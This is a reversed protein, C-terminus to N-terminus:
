VDIEEIDFQNEEDYTPSRRSSKENTFSKSVAFNTCIASNMSMLVQYQYNDLTSPKIFRILPLTLTSVERYTHPPFAAHIEKQKNLTQYDGESSRPKHFRYMGSSQRSKCGFNYFVTSRATVEGMYLNFNSDMRVEWHGFASDFLSINNLIGLYSLLSPAFNPEHEHLFMVMKEANMGCKTLVESVDDKPPYDRSYLGRLEIKLKEEAKKWDDDAKDFRKAYLLKGLCHYPDILVSSQLCYTENFRRNGDFCLQLNHIAARIDGNSNEAIKKIQLPSVKMKLLSTIRRLAKSLFIVASPNFALEEFGIQYRINTPLIRKPSLYWCSDVDSMIFIYMCVTNKVTNRLTAHLVSPDQYFINPLQEILIVKQSVSKELSGRDSSKLFETFKRVQNEEYVVEKGEPDYFIDYYESCNWEILEFELEHCLMKVATTKGSGTPGTLLLLKCERCRGQKKRMWRRLEDVKKPNVALHEVNQLPFRDILAHTSEEEHANCFEVETPVEIEDCDITTNDANTRSNNKKSFRHHNTTAQNSNSSSEFSSCFWTVSMM